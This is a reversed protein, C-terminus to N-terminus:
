HVSVPDMDHQRVAAFAVDHDEVVAMLSGDAAHIAFGDKGEDTVVPKIYAVDEVGLSSLDQASINRLWNQDVNTMM